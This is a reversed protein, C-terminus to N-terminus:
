GHSLTRDVPGLVVRRWYPPYSVVLGDGDIGLDARFGSNVDEYLFRTVGELTDTLRTYRQDELRVDLDPLRIYAMQLAQTENHAWVQRRIPLSNTSPTGMIDIDRCAALDPRLAGNCFWQGNTREILLRRKGGANEIQIDGRVFEWAANCTLAYRLRVARTDVALVATGLWEISESAIRVNAVELGPSDLREWAPHLVRVNAIAVRKSRRVSMEQELRWTTGNDKSIEGHWLFKDASIDNFSWRLTSGDVDAGMLVIRDGVAGGHLTIASGAVANCWTVTWQKTQADFVRVTTGGRREAPDNPRQGSPYFYLVDQMALGGLIWGFHWEGATRRVRGDADFYACDLEWHGVLRDFVEAGSGISTNPGAAALFQTMDHGDDGQGEACVPALQRAAASRFTVGLAAALLGACHARRSHIIASQHSLVGQFAM